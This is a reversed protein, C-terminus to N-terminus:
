VRRRRTKRKRRRGGEFLATRPPANPLEGVIRNWRNRRRRENNSLTNRRLSAKQASLPGRKGSSFEAVSAALEPPLPSGRSGLTQEVALVNRQRVGTFRDLLSVMGPLHIAALDRATQHARNEISLDAGNGCLLQVNMIKKSLDAGQSLIVNMLATNGDNDKANVNAGQEVLFKSIHAKNTACLRNLVTRGRNDRAELNAGHELLFGLTPISAAASGRLAAIMLCTSGDNLTANIDAGGEVLLKVVPENFTSCALHLATEGGVNLRSETNAKYSLLLEVLKKNGLQAACMLATAGDAERSVDVNAGAHFLIIAINLSDISPPKSAAEIIPFTASPKIAGYELRGNPSAGAEILAIVADIHGYHAALALATYGGQMTADLDVVTQSSGPVKVSCLAEIVATYGSRAAFMLPTMGVPRSTANVNAGRSLLFKVRDISVPGQVMGNIAYHLAICGEEPGTAVQENVKAGKDCLLKMVTPSSYESAFMLATKESTPDVANALEPHDRLLEIIMQVPGNGVTQSDKIAKFLQEAM